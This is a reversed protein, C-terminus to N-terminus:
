RSHAAVPVFVRGLADVPRAQMAPAIRGAVGGFDLRGASLIGPRDLNPELAHTPVLATPTSNGSFWAATVPNELLSRLFIRQTHQAGAESNLRHVGPM